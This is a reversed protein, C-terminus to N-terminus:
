VMCDGVLLLKKWSGREGDLGSGRDGDSEGGAESVADASSASRARM